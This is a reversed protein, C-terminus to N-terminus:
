RLDHPAYISVLEEFIFDAVFPENFTIGNASHFEWELIEDYADFFRLELVMDDFNDSVKNEIVTHFEGHIHLSTIIM